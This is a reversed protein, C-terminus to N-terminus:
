SFFLEIEENRRKVLGNIQKGGANVWRLFQSKIEEPNAKSNIKKLLTSRRFNAEGVNYVFLVLADYQGQTLDVNITDQIAKEFRVLDKKLLDVAQSETIKAKLLHQEHAADILTGYGITPLGASDLYMESRFGEVKKLKNIGNESLSKIM